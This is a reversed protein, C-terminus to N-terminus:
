FNNLIANLIFFINANAPLVLEVEILLFSAVKAASFKSFVAKSIISKLSKSIGIYLSSSSFFPNESFAFFNEDNKRVRKERGGRRGTVGGHYGGAGHVRERKSFLEEGIADEFVRNRREVREVGERLVHSEFVFNNGGRRTKFRSINGQVAGRRTAHISDFRV